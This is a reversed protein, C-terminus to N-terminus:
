LSDHNEVPHLISGYGVAVVGERSVGLCYPPPDSTEGHDAKGQAHDFPHEVGGTATYVLYTTAHFHKAQLKHKIIHRNEDFTDM